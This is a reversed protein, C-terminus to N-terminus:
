GKIAGMALSKQVTKSLMIYILLTPVTAISLGAGVEGWRTTYRGILEIIGATLTKHFTDSIFTVSLMLENWSSLFTLIAGTALIPTLLPRIIFFFIRYISAGDIFAAEELEIPLGELAGGTILITLPMAFATYPLVLSAYSNLISHLNLFLPLLVAHMPLMIGVLFLNYVVKSLKWKLRLLGYAAMASFLLTFFITIITIITSNMLYRPLNTNELVAGYNDFRWEQPLGGVNGGFIERNGKLSFTFMWYLPYLQVIAVLILCIYTIAKKVM